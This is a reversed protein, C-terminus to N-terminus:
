TASRARRTYRDDIRILKLPTEAHGRVLKPKVEVAFFREYEIPTFVSRCAGHKWASASLLAAVADLDGGAANIAAHLTDRVSLCRVTRQHGVGFRIEDNVILPGNEQIWAIAIQYVVERLARAAALYASMRDLWLLVEDNSSTSDLEHVRDEMAMLTTERLAPWQSGRISDEDPEYEESM